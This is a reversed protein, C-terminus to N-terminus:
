KEGQQIVAGVVIEPPDNLHKTVTCLEAAKVIAEKYKAPFEPPLCIEIGIKKIMWTESDRETSMMLKVNDAPIGREQCFRLVYIGACTGISAMFLDFPAPSSGEGGSRKPQDTKITFGKYLSYVRQKGPFFVEMNGVIGKKQKM